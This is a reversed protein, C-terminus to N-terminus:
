QRTDSRERFGRGSMERGLVELPDLQRDGRAVEFHLHPATSRGSSGSLALVEGQAVSDGEAVFVWRNHGYLTVHGDGHRVRVYRGYVSDRSADVVAGARVARVYSGTPVAIDLGPHDGAGGSGTRHTRTVFGKQALPWSWGAEPETGTFAAAEAAPTAPPLQIDRESAAVEGSMIRRLDRYASTISDLRGALVNVRDQEERLEAVRRELGEVRESRQYSAALWGLGGGVALLVLLAAGGAAWLARTTVSRSFARAGGEGLVMITWRRGGRDGATM